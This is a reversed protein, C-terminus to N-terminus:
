LINSSRTVESFLTQLLLIAVLRGEWLVYQLAQNLYQQMRMELKRSVCIRFPLLSQQSLQIEIIWVPNGSIIRPDQSKDTGAM